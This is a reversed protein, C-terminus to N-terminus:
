DRSPRIVREGDFSIRRRDQLIQGGHGQISAGLSVQTERGSCHRCTLKRAIAALRAPQALEALEIDSRHRCARCEAMLWRWGFVTAQEVTQPLGADRM